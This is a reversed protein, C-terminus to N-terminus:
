TMGYTSPSDSRSRRGSSALERDAVRHPQQVVHRVRQSVRVLVAHHVAVDLGLVHHEGAPVRQDGIEAHGLRHALGGAALLMVVAPTASPVGTYMAGSCAVASGWTSWRASM